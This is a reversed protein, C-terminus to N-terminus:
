TTLLEKEKKALLNGIEGIADDVARQVDKELRKLEDESLLGKKQLAKLRELVERRVARVSIRGTEAMAATRKVLEQRRELSMEPLVCRIRDADVIPNFGINALQIAREIARLTGRDWPQISITRADPTIIASIDRLRVPAGYAEVTVSEVMAATAKGSHVTAFEMEMFHIAKRLQEKLEALQEM